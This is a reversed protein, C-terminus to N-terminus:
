YIMSGYYVNYFTSEKCVVGEAAKGYPFAIYDDLTLGDTILSSGYESDSVTVYRKELLGDEGMAYVYHNGNESRIFQSLITMSNPNESLPTITVNDEEDLEMEESLSVTFEYFSEVMSRSSDGILTDVSSDPAATDSIWTVTGSVANMSEMDTVSVTQDVELEGLSFESLTATVSMGETNTITIYAGSESLHRIDKAVFTVKGDITATEGGNEALQRARKVNLESQRMQLDLAAKQKEREAIMDKLEQLSYMYHDNLSLEYTEGSRAAEEAEAAQREAEAEAEAQMQAMYEEFQASMDDDFGAGMEGMDPASTGAASNIMVFSAFNVTSGDFSITGAPSVTVGDSLKFDSYDVNELKAGDIVRAYLQVGEESCVYFAATAPSEANALMGLLEKSVVTYEGAVFILPDDATGSGGMPMSTATLKLEFMLKPEDPTAKQDDSDTDSDEPEEEPEEEIEQPKNESPQLQRLVALENDLIEIDNKLTKVALEADAANDELEHTDYTILLDGKKVIDDKKVKVEKITLTQDPKVSVVSGKKLKGFYTKKGLNDVGWSTTELVIDDVLAVKVSPPATLARVGAYGGGAIAAILLPIVIIRKKFKGM